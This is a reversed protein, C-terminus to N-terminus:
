PISFTRALLHCRELLHWMTGTIAVCVGTVVVFNGRGIGKRWIRKAHRKRSLTATKSTHGHPTANKGEHAMWTVCNERCPALCSLRTANVPHVHCYIPTSTATVPGEQCCKSFTSTTVWSEHLFRSASRTIVVYVVHIGRCPWMGSWKALIAKRLDQSVAKCSFLPPDLIKM